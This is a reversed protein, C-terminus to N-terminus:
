GADAERVVFPSQAAVTQGAPREVALCEPRSAWSRRAGELMERARQTGARAVALEVPTSVPTSVPQGDVEEPLLRMGGVWERAMREFMGKGRQRENNFEVADLAASGDPRVTYRIMMDAGLERKLAEVPFRPPDPYPLGGAHGPGNGRYEAAMRMDDGDPVACVGMVVYTVGGRAQGEIIAPQFQLERTRAEVFDRVADPLPSVAEVVDPNGAADVAVKVTTTFAVPADPEQAMLVPAAASLAACCALALITRM